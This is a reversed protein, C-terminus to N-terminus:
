KSNWVGTEATAARASGETNAPRFDGGGGVTALIRSLCLLFNGVVMLIELCFLFDKNISKTKLFIDFEMTNFLIKKIIGATLVAIYSKM